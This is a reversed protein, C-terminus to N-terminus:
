KASSTDSNNDIFVKRPTPLWLSTRLMEPSSYDFLNSWKVLRGDDGFEQGMIYAKDIDYDSGQLWAQWHSVYVINRSNGSYAIAEM